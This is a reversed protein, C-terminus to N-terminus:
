IEQDTLGNLTGARTMSNFKGVKLITEKQLNIWSYNKFISGYTSARIIKEKYNNASLLNSWVIWRIKKIM